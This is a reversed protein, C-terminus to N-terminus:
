RDDDRPLLQPARRDIGAPPPLERARREPGFYIDHLGRLFKQDACVQWGGEEPLAITATCQDFADAEEKTPQPCDNRIITLRHGSRTCRRGVAPTPDDPVDAVMVVDEISGIIEVQDDAPIATGDPRTPEDREFGDRETDGATTM